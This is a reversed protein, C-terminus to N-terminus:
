RGNRKEENELQSLRDHLQPIPMQLAVAAREAAFPLSPMRDRRFEGCIRCVEEAHAFRAIMAARIEDQTM